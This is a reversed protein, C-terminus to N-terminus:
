EGEVIAGCRMLSAALTVEYMTAKRMCSVLEEVNGRQMEYAYVMIIRYVRLEAEHFRRM